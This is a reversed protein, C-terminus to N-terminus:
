IYQEIIINLKGKKTHSDVGRYIFRGHGRVSVLDGEKLRHSTSECCRGSIFVLGRSFLSSADDRSISFVKSIIADIREGVAQVRLEKTKYLDGKPLTDSRKCRVSTRRVRDLSECIFDAMGDKVFIYTGEDRIVIDGLVSRDIGLNLIAGLYDRHTLKEAFKESLPACILTTIPYDEVYGCLEESGFRVMVRECGEAGGFLKYPIGSLERQLEFFASQEGLGLFDTFTYIGSNYSKKALELFRKKELTYDERM